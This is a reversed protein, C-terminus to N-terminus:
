PKDHSALFSCTDETLFRYTEYLREAAQPLNPTPLPAAFSSTVELWLSRPDQPWSEIRVQFNAPHNQQPQFGLRLGLSHMPRGFASLAESSGSLLRETLFQQGSPQHKPQILSRVCFTQALTASIGLTEFATKSVNVLRTAFDEVTAGRMEERMLLRDPQLTLLSVQGPAAALNSLHIGDQAIQFSQYGLNAQRFLANHVGQALDTRLQMPPFLLDAHFAITRPDYSMGPPPDYARRALPPAAIQPRFPRRTGIHSPLPAAVPLNAHRWENGVAAM